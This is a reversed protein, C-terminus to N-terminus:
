SKLNLELIEGPLDDFDKFEVSVFGNNTLIKRSAINKPDIIAFIRKLQGLNRAKTILFHSTESGIGKGWYEPKLIYGLEAEIPQPDNIELKIVGIFNEKIDTIKYYGYDPNLDNERVIEDFKTRAEKESLGSETIM